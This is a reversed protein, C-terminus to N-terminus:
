AKGLFMELEAVRRRKLGPLRRGKAYVWRTFQKAAGTFDGENLKKLLTSRAFAGLGINYALSVLADFQHQALKVKVLKHVRASLRDLKASLLADAKTRTIEMGPEVDETHGYGIAWSGDVDKYAQLELGEFAKIHGRAKHSARM